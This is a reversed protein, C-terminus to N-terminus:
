FSRQTGASGVMILISELTRVANYTSDFPADRRAYYVRTRTGDSPEYTGFM